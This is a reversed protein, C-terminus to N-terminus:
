TACYVIRGGVMTLRPAFHTDFITLDARAGVRLAGRQREGL